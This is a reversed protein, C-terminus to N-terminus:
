AGKLRILEEPTLGMYDCFQAASIHYSYRSESVKVATGFPLLKRQLGIRVFQESKGMIKAVIPVKISLM